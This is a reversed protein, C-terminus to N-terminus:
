LRKRKEDQLRLKYLELNELYSSRFYNESLWKVGEIPILLRGDSLYSCEINSKRMRTLSVYITNISKNFYKSLERVTMAKYEIEKHPISLEDELRLIQKRFFDIDLDLYYKEENSYVNKLWEVFELKLYVVKQGNSAVREDIWNEKPHRKIMKKIAIDLQKESMKLNQQVRWKEQAKFEM